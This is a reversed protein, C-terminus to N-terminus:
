AKFSLPEKDAITSKVLLPLLLQAVEAPAVRGLDARVGDPGPAKHPQAKRIARELQYRSMLVDGPIVLPDPPMPGDVVHAPVRAAKPVPPLANYHDVIAHIDLLMAHEVKAFHQHM